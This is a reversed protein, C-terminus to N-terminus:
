ADFCQRVRRGLEEGSWDGVYQRPLEYRGTWRSIRGAVTTCALQYGVERVLNVTTRDFTGTAGFPYAFWAPERGLLNTLADRNQQLEVRQGESDLATLWPHNHTHGGINFPGTRALDRVEDPSLRRHRPCATTSRRTQEAISTLAADIAAPPLVRLRRNLARMARTRGAASRVDIRVGPGNLQVELFAASGPELVLHELRDWWFETGEALGGTTVFFTAPLGESSLIPAATQANDAYGDDFTIAVRRGRARGLVESTPVVDFDRALVAVQEAFRDPRVSLSYLDHTPDAVRHYCLVLASGRALM